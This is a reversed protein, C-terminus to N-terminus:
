GGERVHVYQVM